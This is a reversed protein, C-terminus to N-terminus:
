VTNKAAHASLPLEHSGGKGIQNKPHHEGKAEGLEPPTVPM